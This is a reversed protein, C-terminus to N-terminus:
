VGIFSLLVLFQSRYFIVLDLNSWSAQSSSWINPIINGYCWCLFYIFYIQVFCCKHLNRVISDAFWWHIDVIDPDSNLHDYVIWIRVCLWYFWFSCVLFAMISFMVKVMLIVNILIKLNEFKMSLGKFFLIFFNM